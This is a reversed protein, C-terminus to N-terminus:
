GRQIKSFLGTIKESKDNERMKGFKFVLSEREKDYFHISCYDAFPVENFIVDTLNTFLEKMELSSNIAQSARYIAGLGIESTKESLNKRDLIIKKVSSEYIISSNLGPDESRNLSIETFSFEVKGIKIIDGDILKKSETPKENVFVPNAPNLAKIIAIRSDSSIEAHNRSVSLDEIIINCSSSRGILSTGQKLRYSASPTGIVSLEFHSM